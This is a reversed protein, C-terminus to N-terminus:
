NKLKWNVILTSVCPSQKEIGISISLLLSVKKIYFLNTIESIHNTWIFSTWRYYWIVYVYTEEISYALKRQTKSEISISIWEIFGLFGQNIGESAHYTGLSEYHVEIPIERSSIICLDLRWRLWM